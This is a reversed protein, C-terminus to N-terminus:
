TPEEMRTQTPEQTCARWSGRLEARSPLLAERLITDVCQSVRDACRDSLALAERIAAKLERIRAQEEEIKLLYAIGKDELMQARAEARELVRIRALAIRLATTANGARQIAMLIDQSETM